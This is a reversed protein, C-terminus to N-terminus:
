REAEETPGDEGWPRSPRPAAPVETWGSRDQWLRIRKDAGVPGSETVSGDPWRVEIRSVEGAGGLGFHLVPANSGAWSEGVLLQRVRRLEGSEVTVRAGIAWRNPADGVLEVELWHGQAPSRNALLLVPGNHVLVAVDILGDRDYDAFSAGRGVILEGFVAGATASVDEFRGNVNRYLLMKQPIMKPDTLVELTWEDEV